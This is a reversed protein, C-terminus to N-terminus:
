LQDEFSNVFSIKFYTGIYMYIYFLVDKKILIKLANWCQFRNFFYSMKYKAHILIPVYVKFYKTVYLLMHLCHIDFLQV